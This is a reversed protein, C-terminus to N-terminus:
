KPLGGVKMQIVLLGLNAANFLSHALVPALLGETKEYLWTLALAFVVLPLFIPASAHIFAFLLSVVIWGCKPWGVKKFGSFLLGRFIFEEALPALIVAFFGLYIKLWPSKAALIMAVARQDEIGRGLRTLVIDSFCKLDFMVPAVALLAFVVLLLQRSWGMTNLGAFDRWGLDHLKFFIIGAVIAAGHFGLTALLLSGSDDPTRFGVIGARRLL